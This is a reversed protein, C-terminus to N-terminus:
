RLMIEYSTIITIIQFKVPLNLNFLFVTPSNFSQAFREKHLLVVRIESLTPPVPHIRGRSFVPVNRVINGDEFILFTDEIM